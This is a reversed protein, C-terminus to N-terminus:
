SFTPHQRNPKQHDESNKPKHKKTKTRFNLNLSKNQRLNRSKTTTKQWLYYPLDTPLRNPNLAQKPNSKQNPTQLSKITAVKPETLQSKGHQSWSSTVTPKPPPAKRPARAITASLCRLSRSTKLMTLSVLSVSHGCRNRSVTALSITLYSLLM